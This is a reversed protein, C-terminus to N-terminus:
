SILIGNLHDIEHQFIRALYGDAEIELKKGYRDLGSIGMAKSREVNAQLRPISLCGEIGLEQEFSRWEIKPNAITYLKISQKEEDIYEVVFLKLSEGVQPAALGVGPVLRMTMFMKDVLIQFESGFDTIQKTKEILVPSPVTYIRM